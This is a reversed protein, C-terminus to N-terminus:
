SRLQLQCFASKGLYCHYMVSAYSEDSMDWYKGVTRKDISLERAARRKSYGKTKLEQIKGYMPTGVM